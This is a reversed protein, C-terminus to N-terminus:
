EGRVARLAARLRMPRTDSNDGIGLEEAINEVVTLLYKIESPEVIGAADCGNVCSVIRRANAELETPKYDSFVPLIRAFPVGLTEGRLPSINGYDFNKADLGISARWPGKTHKADKM